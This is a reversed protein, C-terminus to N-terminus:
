KKAVANKTEEVLKVVYKGKDGYAEKSILIEDGVSATDMVSAVSLSKSEFFKVGWETDFRYQVCEEEPKFKDPIIKFGMFKVKVEEGVSLKLFTANKKAWDTLKGM